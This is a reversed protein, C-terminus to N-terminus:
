EAGDKGDGLTVDQGTQINRRALEAWVSRLVLATTYDANAAETLQEDTADALDLTPLTM